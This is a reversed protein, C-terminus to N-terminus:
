RYEENEGRLLITESGSAREFNYWFRLMWIELDTDTFVVCLRGYYKLVAVIAGSMGFCILVVLSAVAFGRHVFGFVGMFITAVAPVAILQSYVCYKLWTRARLNIM